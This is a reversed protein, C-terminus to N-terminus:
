KGYFSGYQKEYAKLFDTRSISFGVDDNVIEIKVVDNRFDKDFYIDIIKVKTGDEKDNWIEGIKM